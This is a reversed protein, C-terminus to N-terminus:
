FNAIIVDSALDLSQTNKGYKDVYKIDFDGYVERIQPHYKYLAVWRAEVEKLHTALRRHNVMTTEPGRSKGYDSLNYSFKGVPLLLIEDQSATTPVSKIWDDEQEWAISLNELKFRRLRRSAVVNFGENTIEGSSIQGTSSGRNLAYFFAARLFPDDYTHWNKQLIPFLFQDFKFFESNLLDYIRRPNHLLCQWFEYVVYRTTHACVPYGQACLSLELGGGFLLYSHIKAPRSIMQNILPMLSSFDAAPDKIPTKM